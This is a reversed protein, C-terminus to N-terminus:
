FGVPAELMAEVARAVAATDRGTVVSRVGPLGALIRPASGHEVVLVQPKGFHAALAAEVPASQDGNSLVTVVCECGRIRETIAAAFDHPQLSDLMQERVPLDVSRGHIQGVRAITHYLPSMETYGSAVEGAVYVTEVM